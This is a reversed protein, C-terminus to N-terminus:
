RDVFYDAVAHVFAVASLSIYMWIYNVYVDIMDMFMTSVPTNRQLTIDFIYVILFVVIYQVSVVIQISKRRKGFVLALITDIPVILWILLYYLIFVSYDLERASHMISPFDAFTAVSILLAVVSLLALAVYRCINKWWKSHHSHPKPKAVPIEAKTQNVKSVYDFYEDFPTTNTYPSSDAVVEPMVPSPASSVPIKGTFGTTLEDMSPAKMSVPTHSFTEGMKESPSYLSINEQATDMSPSFVEDDNIIGYDIDPIDLPTYRHTEEMYSSHSEKKALTGITHHSEGMRAGCEDCYMAFDPLIKGCKHCRM